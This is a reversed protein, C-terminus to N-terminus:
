TAFCDPPPPTHFSARSLAAADLMPFHVTLRGPPSCLAAQNLQVSSGPRPAAHGCVASTSGTCGLTVNGRSNHLQKCNLPLQDTAWLSVLRISFAWLYILSLISLRLMLEQSKPSAVYRKWVTDVHALM